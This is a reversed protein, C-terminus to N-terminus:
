FFIGKGKLMQEDIKEPTFDGIKEYVFGFLLKWIM